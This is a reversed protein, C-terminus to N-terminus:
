LAELLFEHMQNRSSHVVGKWVAPCYKRCIKDAATQFGPGLLAVQPLRVCGQFDCAPFCLYIPPVWLPRQECVRTLLNAKCYLWLFPPLCTDPTLIIVLAYIIILSCKETSPSTALTGDGTEKLLSNSASTSRLAYDECFPM